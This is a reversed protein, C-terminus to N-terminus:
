WLSGTRNPVPEKTIWALKKVNEERLTRPTRSVLAAGHFQPVTPLAVANRVRLRM